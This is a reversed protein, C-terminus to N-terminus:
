HFPTKCYSRFIKKEKPDCHIDFIWVLCLSILIACLVYICDKYNVSWQYVYGKIYIKSKEPFSGVIDTVLVFPKYDLIHRFFVFFINM